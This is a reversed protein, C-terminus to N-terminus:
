VLPLEFWFTSGKGEESEFDIRGNHDEIFHKAIFLGLGSADPKLNFANSARQFRSFLRDRETKPIGIGNDSM